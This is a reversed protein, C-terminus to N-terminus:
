RKLIELRILDAEQLDYDEAFLHEAFLKFVLSKNRHDRVQEEIGDIADGVDVGGSYSSSGKGGMKAVTPPNAGGRRITELVTRLAPLEGEKLTARGDHYEARARLHEGLEEATFKLRFGIVM